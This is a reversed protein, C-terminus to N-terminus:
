SNSWFCFGVSITAGHAESADFILKRLRLVESTPRTTVLVSDAVLRTRQRLPRVVLLRRAMRPHSEAMGAAGQPVSVDPRHVALGSVSLHGPLRRALLQQLARPDALCLAAHTAPGHAS